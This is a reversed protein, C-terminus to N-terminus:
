LRSIGVLKKVEKLAPVTQLRVKEAGSKLIEEIFKKNNTLEVFKERIPLLMQNLDEFVKQKADGWGIGDEFLNKMNEQKEVSAFSSYIAFLTNDKWEKKEGPEQSNTVIKMVSKRLEKENSLLPIINNYSKSMKRGDTGLVTKENQIVAEPVNFFKGYKSNFKEAIDRTIELHQQQDKGVPVHTANPTLIDSAMLLPYSFLGLSIGEDMEKKGSENNQDVAAKYAHARNLLGKETICSLLWALETIEPVDSQRYFSTTNPDLGSALWAMAIATSLEELKNPDSVKIVAHLDAIFLFSECKEDLLDLSPKIAGIYNGLHPYGSPTIGTLIRKM